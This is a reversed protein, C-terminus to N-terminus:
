IFTLLLSITFASILTTLLTTSSVLQPETDFQLALMNTTAASPMAASIILVKVLLPDFPLFLTILWAIIPSILLRLIIGISVKEFDLKKIKIQSLQMGLILMVTPITANSVFDIIKYFSDEMPLHLNKWIIALLFAYISPIKLVKKFTTKFGESGKAAYYVGYSNLFITQLVVFSISYLFGKEGFAFLIVPAGYNGTNMFGTSLILGNKTSPSYKRFLGILHIIMTISYFLALSFIVMYLYNLGLEINYFTRFVLFPMLIYLALSSISKIDMKLLKQGSFGIFFVFFIPLIVKVMVDFM